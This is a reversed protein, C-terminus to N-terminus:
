RFLDVEVIEFMKYAGKSIEVKARAIPVLDLGRLAYGFEVTELLLRSLTSRDGGPFTAAAAHLAHIIGADDATRHDKQKSPAPEDLPFMGRENLAVIQLRTDLIRRVRGGASVHVRVEGAGPTLIPLGALHQRFIAIHEYIEPESSLKQDASAGAHLAPLVTRLALNHDAGIVRQASHLVQKETLTSRKLEAPEYEVVAGGPILGFYASGKAVRLADLPGEPLHEAGEFDFRRMSELISQRTAIRPAIRAFRIEKPFPPFASTKTVGAAPPNGVWRWWYWDRSPSANTFFRENFLRDQAEAATAGVATSSPKQGSGADLLSDQWAQSFSAGSKWHNWFNTGYDPNDAILDTAGFLMRFGRNCVNWTRIPNNPAFVM